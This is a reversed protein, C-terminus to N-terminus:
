ATIPSRCSITGAMEASSRLARPAYVRERAREPERSQERDRAAEECVAADEEDAERECALRDVACAVNGFARQVLRRDDEALALEQL